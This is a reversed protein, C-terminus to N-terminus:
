MVPYFAYQAVGCMGQRMAVDRRIRIYGEEGWTEGWSNKALWYNKGYKGDSTGYGVFTVVHNVEHHDCDQPTYEYVGEKYNGFGFSRSDMYVSVPQRSVAELLAREDNSPVQQFGKIQTGPAPSINSRCSGEKTEYPYEVESAIGHNKAIYDFADYSQGATCGGNHKDCDILQQESLSILNKGIIKTLGEVAAVASFAWCSGCSGQSKVPTVAGEARWDKSTDDVYSYNWNKSLMTENVLQKSLSTLNMSGLGTHTAFFEEETLDTFENVGLKYSQNGMNNFNEIVKLNKKFVQLRRQKEFEDKYVRSFQVMWQHHYDVISPKHLTIRSTAQSVRIDMSNTILVVLVFMVLSVM